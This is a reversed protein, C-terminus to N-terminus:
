TEPNAASFVKNNMITNSNLYYLVKVASRIYDKVSIYVGM